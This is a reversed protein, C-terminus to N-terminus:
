QIGGPAGHLVHVLTWKRRQLEVAYRQKEAHAHKCEHLRGGALGRLSVRSDDIVNEGRPFRGVNDTEPLIMVPIRCRAAGPM